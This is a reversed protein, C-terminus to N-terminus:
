FMSASYEYSRMILSTAVSYPPPMAREASNQKKDANKDEFYAFICPFSYSMGILFALIIKHKTRNARVTNKGNAM